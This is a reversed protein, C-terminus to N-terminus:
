FGGTLPDFDGRLAKAAYKEADIEQRSRFGLKRLVPLPPCWGQIGHQLLFALVVAPIALLKRNVLVGLALGSLALTAANIELAREVDSERELREIRESLESPSADRMDAIRERAARDLETLRDEDTHKRVRDADQSEAPQYPTPTSVM